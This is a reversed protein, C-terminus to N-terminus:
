PIESSAVGLQRLAARYAEASGGLGAVIAEAQADDIGVSVNPGWGRKRGKRDLAYRVMDKDGRKVFKVVHSEAIDLLTEETRRIAEQLFPSKDVREQVASRGLKVMKAAQSKNGGAKTLADALAADSVTKHAAMTQEATHPKTHRFHRLTM